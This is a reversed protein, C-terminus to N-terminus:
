IKFRIKITKNQEQSSSFTEDNEIEKKFEFEMRLDIREKPNLKYRRSCLCQYRILYREAYAPEIILKPSLYIVKKTLNEVHYFIEYKKGALAEKVETISPYFIIDKHYNTVEFTIDFPDNGAERPIYYSLLFQQCKNTIQCYWNYP